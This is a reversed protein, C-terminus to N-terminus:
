RRKWSAKRPKDNSPLLRKQVGKEMGSTQSKQFCGLSVCGMPFEAKDRFKRGKRPNEAEIFAIEVGELFGSFTPVM